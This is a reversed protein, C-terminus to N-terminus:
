KPLIQTILNQHEPRLLDNITKVPNFTSLPVEVFLTNWNAMSGNWLGPLELAKIPKGNLTKHAIFGTNPDRFQMLDFKEGKYNKIGCVLDVPNFHTSSKFISSQTADSMNVQASEIIQLSAAGNNNKVWFPGGGPEGQNKVMGCVRIPRNLMAVIQSTSFDGETGLKKLLSQGKSKIDIGKDHTELLDFMQRQYDLLVGALVKKYRITEGKIRDPVVNDINKIFVVDAMRENLNELLAGHGAPRFVMKGNEDLVPQNNLDVAVTDTEHKQFSFSIKWKDSTLYTSLISKFKDLHEPSVTFHVAYTGQNEAYREAEVLHEEAATRSGSPYKHFPLLGKPFQDLKLKEFVDHAVSNPDVEFPLRNVNEIFYTVNDTAVEDNKWKILEAFMRSAAGSAPVFKEVTIKREDFIQIYGHEDAKSLALIGDQLKAPRLLQQDPFGDKFWKLQDALEVKM